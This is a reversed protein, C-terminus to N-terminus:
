PGQTVAHGQKPAGLLVEAWYARQAGASARVCLWLRCQPPPIEEQGPLPVQQDPHSSVWLDGLQGSVPLLGEPTAFQVPVTEVAPGPTDEALLAAHPAIKVQPSKYASSSFQGGSGDDGDGVGIVGTTGGHGEVGIPGQAFVGLETGAVDAGRGIRAGSTRFGADAAGLAVFKNDETAM